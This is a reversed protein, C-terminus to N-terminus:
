EERRAKLYLASKRCYEQIIAALATKHIDGEGSHRLEWWSSEPHGSIEYLLKDRGYVYLGMACAHSFFDKVLPAEFSSGDPYFYRASTPELAQKSERLTAEYIRDIEGRNEVIWYSELGNTFEMRVIEMRAPLNPVVPVLRSPEAERVKKGEYRWVVPENGFTRRQRLSEVVFLQDIKKRYSDREMLSARDARTVKEGASCGMTEMALLGALLLTRMRHM